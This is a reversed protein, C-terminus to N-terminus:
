LPGSYGSLSSRVIITMGTSYAERSGAERGAVGDGTSKPGGQRVRTRM